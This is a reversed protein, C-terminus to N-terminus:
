DDEVRVIAPESSSEPLFDSVRWDASENLAHQDALIEGVSREDEAAEAFIDAHQEGM